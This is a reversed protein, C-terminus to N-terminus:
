FIAEEKYEKLNNRYLQLMNQTMKDDELMVEDMAIGNMVDDAFCESPVVSCNGCECNKSCVDCCKCGVQYDGSLSYFTDNKDDLM